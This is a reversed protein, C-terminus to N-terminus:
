RRGEAPIARRALLRLSIPRAPPRVTGVYLSRLRAPCRASRLSLGSSSLCVVAQAKARPAHRPPAHRSRTVSVLTAHVL